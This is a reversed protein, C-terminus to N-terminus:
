SDPPEDLAKRARLLAEEAWPKGQYLEIVAERMRRAQEPDTEELEAARDLRDLVLGLRTAAIWDTQERLRDLRKKAL